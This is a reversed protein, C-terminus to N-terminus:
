PRDGCRRSPAPDSLAEERLRVLEDILGRRLTEEEGTLDDLLRGKEGDVSRATAFFQAFGKLREEPPVVPNRESEWSSVLAVSVGLADAVERQLVVRDRLLTQRLERLRSALAKQSPTPEEAM